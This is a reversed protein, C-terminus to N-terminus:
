EPWGQKLGTTGSWGCHYALQRSVSGNSLHPLPLRLALPGVEQRCRVDSTPPLRAQLVRRGRHPQHFQVHEKAVTPKPHVLMHHEGVQQRITDLALYLTQGMDQSLLRETDLNGM